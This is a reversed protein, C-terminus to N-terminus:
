IIRPKLRITMPNGARLILIEVERESNVSKNLLDRFGKGSSIKVNDVNLMLDGEKLGASEAPSKPFIKEVLYGQDTYVGNISIRAVKVKNTTSENPVIQSKHACSTISLLLVVFMIILKSRV